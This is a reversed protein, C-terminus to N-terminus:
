FRFDVGINFGLGAPKRVIDADTYKISGLKSQINFSLGFHRTFMYNVGASLFGGVSSYSEDPYSTGDIKVDTMSWNLGGIGANATFAFKGKGWRGYLAPGYFMVMDYCSLIETNYEDFYTINGGSSNLKFGAGLWENFFYAFDLGFVIATGTPSLSEGNITIKGFSSGGLDLSAYFPGYKVSSSSAPEAKKSPAQAPTEYVPAPKANRVPTSSRSTTAAPTFNYQYSAVEKKPISIIGGAGFRFQIEDPKVEVIKCKLSDGSTAVILDQGYVFVPCLLFALFILYKM